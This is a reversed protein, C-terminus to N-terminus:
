ERRAASGERKRLEATIRNIAASEIKQSRVFEPSHPRGFYQVADPGNYDPAQVGYSRVFLYTRRIEDRITRLVGTPTRGLAGDTARNVDSARDNKFLRSPYRVRKGEANYYEGYESEPYKLPM